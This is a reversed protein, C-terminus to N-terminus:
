TGDKSLMLKHAVLLLVFVAGPVGVYLAFNPTPGDVAFSVVRAFLLGMVFLAAPRANDVRQTVAAIALSIGIALIPAGLFARFNSLGEVGEPSILLKAAGRDPALMFMLGSASLFLSLVGFIGRGILKNDM